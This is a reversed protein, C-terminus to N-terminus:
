HATSKYLASKSPSRSSKYPSAGASTRAPSSTKVKMMSKEMEEMNKSKIHEVYDKRDLEGRVKEDTEVFKDLERHM